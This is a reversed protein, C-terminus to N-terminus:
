FPIDDDYADFEVAEEDKPLAIMATPTEAQTGPRMGDDEHKGFGTGDFCHLMIEPYKKNIWVRLHTPTKIGHAVEIAENCNKPMPLDTRAKWWRLAKKVVAPYPNEFGIFEFFTRVNCHYAVKVSPTGGPKNHVSYVIHDVKFVEVLPLDGRIIDDTGAGESIKVSFDFEHTCKEGNATIGECFRVSAHNETDCVPCVKIPATGGGKGKRRPIIPDNIPGLRKSNRAFDLIMCNEKGPSPRTGRGCIQVWLVVSQTPRLCVILDIQPCDYGTTLIGNNVLATFKGAKHDAINQDREKGTMKSHVVRAEIGLSNLMACVNVAHTVGAAFVLWCKRDHGVEMAERLCRETIDYQDVAKQLEGPIYEGGRTHVGSVDLEMSTRKPVLPALFGEAILRNFAAMGTINFCIDTFMGPRLEGNPLEIPDTISGHGMRWPTATLGIVKMLPNITRLGRIFEQYMTTETPSLLHAEDIMLFDIFGFVAWKKYVSAIGAFTIPKSTDSSNLGASCVGAPAFPWMLMLKEFNQKILEKVHTIMIIRTLPYSEMARKIFRAIVVSKGTGTPMAVVPDGENYLFYDWLCNVAEVQYSRDQFVQALPTISNNM